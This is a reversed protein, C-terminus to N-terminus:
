TWGGDVVLDQATCMCSDDAALFLAMRAVHEPLLAAYVPMRAMKLMWSVSGFNVISGRGAQQVDPVVAQATFLQQKLNVAIGADFSEPTTEAVTHRQDNAANNM